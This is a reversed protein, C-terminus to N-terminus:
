NCAQLQSACHSTQAQAVVCVACAISTDDTSACSGAGGDVSKGGDSPLCQDFACTALAQFESQAQPSGATLCDLQCNQDDNNCGATCALIGICSTGSAGDGVAADKARVEQGAMDKSSHNDNCGLFSLPAVGCVFTLLGLTSIRM